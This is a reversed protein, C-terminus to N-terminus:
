PLESDCKEGDSHESKESNDEESYSNSENDSETDQNKFWDGCM